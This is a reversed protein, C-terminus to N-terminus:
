TVELHHNKINMYQKLDLNTNMTKTWINQLYKFELVPKTKDFWKFRKKIIIQVVNRIEQKIFKVAKNTMLLHLAFEIKKPFLIGESLFDSELLTQFIEQEDLNEALLGFHSQEMVNKFPHIGPIIKVVNPIQIKSEKHKSRERTPFPIKPQFENEPSTKQGSKSSNYAIIGQRVQYWDTPDLVLSFPNALVTWSTDISQFIVASYKKLNQPLKFKNSHAFVLRFPNRKKLVNEIERQYEVILTHATRPELIIASENKLNNVFEKTLLKLNPKQRESPLIQTRTKLFPYKFETWALTWVSSVNLIKALNELPLFKTENAKEDSENRNQSINEIKKRLKTMNENMQDPFDEFYKQINRFCNEWVNLTSPCKLFHDDNDVCDTHCFPCSVPWLHKKSAIKKFNVTTPFLQTWLILGFSEMATGFTEKKWKNLMELGLKPRIVLGQSSDKWSTIEKEKFINAIEKRPDNILIENTDIKKMCVFSEGMEINPHCSLKQNHTSAIKATRDAIDNGHTKWDTVSQHSKVHEFRIQLQKNKITSTIARLIPRAPQRTQKRTTLSEFNSIADIASLSDTYFSIKTGFSALECVALIAMLEAPYNNVIGVTGGFAICSLIKFKTMETVIAAGWGCNGVEIKTSGDTFVTWSHRQQLYLLTESTYPESVKVDNFIDSKFLPIPKTIKTKIDPVEQFKVGIKLARELFHSIRNGKSQRERIWEGNQNQKISNTEISDQNGNLNIFLESTKITTAFDTLRPIETIISFASRSVNLPCQNSKM